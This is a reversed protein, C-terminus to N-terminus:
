GTWAPRETTAGCPKGPPGWRTLAVFTITSVTSATISRKKQRAAWTAERRGVASEGEPCGIPQSDREARSARLEQLKPWKDLPVMKRCEIAEAAQETMPHHNM